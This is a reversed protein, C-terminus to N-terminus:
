VLVNKGSVRNRSTCSGEGKQSVTHLEDRILAAGLQAAGVHHWQWLREPGRQIVLSLFRINVEYAPLETGLAAIIPRTPQRGTSYCLTAHPMWPQLCASTGNEQGVAAHTAALAADRIPALAEQPHVGLVIAEPHYIIRQLTVRIPATEALYSRAAALMEAMNNDNIDNTSGAILTTIHLWRLPTLHLHPFNSIRQQAQEVINRLGTNDGLLIHWYVTGEGPKNDSRRRWRDVFEQPLPSM